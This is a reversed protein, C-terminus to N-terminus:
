RGCGPALPYSRRGRSWRAPAAGCRLRYAELARGVVGWYSGGALGGQLVIQYVALARGQVWRPVSLQAAVNLISFALDVGRRRDRASRVGCDSRADYRSRGHDIHLHRHSVHVIQRLLTRQLRALLAGGIVAGLGFWGLMLGFGAAGLGLRWRAILPLVAWMASAGFTFAATRILVARLATAYRVYRM